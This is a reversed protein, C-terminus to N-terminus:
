RVELTRSSFCARCLAHLAADQEVRQAVGTSRYAANRLLRHPGHAAGPRTSAARRWRQALTCRNAGGKSGTSRQAATPGSARDTVRAALRVFADTIVPTIIGPTGTPMRAASYQWELAACRGLGEAVDGARRACYSDTKNGQRARVARPQSSAAPQSSRAPQSSASLQWSSCTTYPLPSRLGGAPSPRPRAIAYWSSFPPM